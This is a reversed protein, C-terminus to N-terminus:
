LSNLSSTAWQSVDTPLGQFTNIAEKMQQSTVLLSFLQYEKKCSKTRSLPAILELDKLREFAKYLIQRNTIVSYNNAAFKMYQKVIMEFNFPEGDYIENHHTAAIVLCLELVSLDKLLEVKADSGLKELVEEFMSVTFDPTSESLKSIVLLIWMKLRKESADIELQHRILRQVKPKDLIDALNENWDSVFRKGFMKFYRPHMAFSLYHKIREIRDSFNNSPFLFIQRHSFRSKVRKELMETIDIRCTLGVVCIPAQASQAIDFLNYLLTQNRHSCFLQFEELIFLIPKTAQRNGSKLSQLVFLLNDAFSGTVIGDGLEDLHMQRIIDKLALNDNTHILGHLKVVIYDDSDVKDGLRDLCTTVLLSKGCGKPGIVLVSDSEGSVVTREMTGLLQRAEEHFGILENEWILKSKFCKRLKLVREESEKRDNTM